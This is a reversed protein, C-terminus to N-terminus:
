VGFRDPLFAEAVFPTPELGKIMDAINKGAFFTYPMGHGSFGAAIYQGPHSKMPGILPNRDKSFGLVGIWEQEVEVGASLDEFHSPFYSRLASSVVETPALEDKCGWEGGEALNRMGGLLLRGDPRQMFYEYGQNACLGFDWMHIQPSTIIVQNRVPTIIGELSPLLESAWANTAHVVENCQISGRDTVVVCGSKGGESSTVSLVPTHSQLNAGLSIAKQVMGVVLKAPWLNACRKKFLGGEYHSSKCRTRCTEKGWWEFRDAGCTESLITYTKHLSQAEEATVALIIEGGFRLECEIDNEVAFSEIADTCSMTYEYLKATTEVGFKNISNTMSDAIGPTLFGGNRGTAGACIGLRDM